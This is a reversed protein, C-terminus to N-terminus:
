HTPGHQARLTEAAADTVKALHLTAYVQAQQLLDAATLTYGDGIQEAYTVAILAADEYNRRSEAELMRERAQAPAPRSWRDVHCLM